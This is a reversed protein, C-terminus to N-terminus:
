EKAKAVPEWRADIYAPQDLLELVEGLFQFKMEDLNPKLYLESIFTDRNPLPKAGHGTLKDLHKNNSTILADLAERRRTVEDNIVKEAWAETVESHKEVTRELKAIGKLLHTALLSLRHHASIAVHELEHQALTTEWVSPTDYRAPLRIQQRMTLTVETFEPTIRVLTMKPTTGKAVTGKTGKKQPIDTLEYEYSFRHTLEFKYNTWGPFQQPQKNPDYFELQTLGRDFVPKIWEPPMPKPTEASTVMTTVVLSLYAISMCVLSRIVLLEM